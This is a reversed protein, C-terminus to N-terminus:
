EQFVPPVKLYEGETEPFQEKGQGRLTSLREEDDRLINKLFTGGNMPTVNSTDLDKLEQFYNLISGLDKAFREKEEQYLELRALQALHDIENEDIPPSAM